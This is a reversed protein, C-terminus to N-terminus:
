PRALCSCGPRSAPWDQRTTSFRIISGPVAFVRVLLIWLPILGLAVHPIADPIRRHEAVLAGAAVDVPQPMHHEKRLHQQPATAVLDVVSRVWLSAAAFRRQSAKADRVQEAFLRAMEAGYRARFEDPYLRLLQGYTREFRSM